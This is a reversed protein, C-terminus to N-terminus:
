ELLLPRYQTHRVRGVRPGTQDAEGVRAEGLQAAGPALGAFGERGVETLKGRGVEGGQLGGDGDDVFEEGKFRQLGRGPSCTTTGSAVWTRRPPRTRRRSRM